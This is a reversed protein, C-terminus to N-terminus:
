AAEGATQAERLVAAPVCGHRRADAECEEYSEFVQRSERLLGGQADLCEWGWGGFVGCYIECVDM